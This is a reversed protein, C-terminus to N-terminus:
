LIMRQINLRVQFQWITQDCWEHLSHFGLTATDQLNFVISANTAIRCGVSNKTKEWYSEDCSGFSWSYHSLWGNSSPKARSTLTDYSVLHIKRRNEPEDISTNLDEHMFNATEIHLLNVLKVDSRHTMEDIVTKFIQAVKPMTVVM